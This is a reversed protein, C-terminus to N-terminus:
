EYVYIDIPLDGLHNIIVKKVVNWDLSGLGCGIRPIAISTIGKSQWSDALKALGCVIYDIQSADRWNDKTPFNLIWHDREKCLLLLGPKLQNALCCKRYREFMRPYKEKFQKALGAGMVGKCNVPNVLTQAHSDFINGRVWHIM